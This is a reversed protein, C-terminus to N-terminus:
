CFLWLNSSAGAIFDIDGLERLLDEAELAVILNDELLLVHLSMLPKTEPAGQLSKSGLSENGAIGGANEFHRCAFQAGSQEFATRTITRLGPALRNARSSPDAAVAGLSRAPTRRRM